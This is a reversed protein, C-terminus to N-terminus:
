SHNHKLMRGPGKVEACLEGETRAWQKIIKNRSQFCFSHPSKLLIPSNRRAKNIKTGHLLILSAYFPKLWIFRYLCLLSGIFFSPTFSFFHRPHPHPLSSLLFNINNSILSWKKNDPSCFTKSGILGKFWIHFESSFNSIMETVKNLKMSDGVTM